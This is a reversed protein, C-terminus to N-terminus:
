AAELSIEVDCWGLLLIADQLSMLEPLEQLESDNRPVGYSDLKHEFAERDLLNDYGFRIIAPRFVTLHSERLREDQLVRATERGETLEPLMSKGRGDMEGIILQGDRTLWAFDVRFWKGPELPDEIWVQIRPAAFGLEHMAARAISEGGSEARGDALAAVELARRLGRHGRYTTRLREVLERATTGTRRLAADAIALADPFDLTVLCDFVTRWFTTLRLGDRVIARREGLRRMRIGPVSRGSSRTAVEVHTLYRWTVPLGYAVAASTGCFNWTPHRSAIGRMLQMVRQPPTLRRWTSRRAFMGRLPQILELGRDLLAKRDKEAVPVLCSDSREAKDLQHDIRRHVKDSM